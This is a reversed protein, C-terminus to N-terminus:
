ERFPDLQEERTDMGLPKVACRLRFLIEDMVETVDQQQRAAEEAKQLNTQQREPTTLHRPPLPPAQLSEDKTGSVSQPRSQPPSPPLITSQTMENPTEDANSGALTISSAISNPRSPPNAGLSATQSTNQIDSMEMEVDQQATGGDSSPPIAETDEPNLFARCVLDADPRVATSPDKIMRDFLHQLDYVFKQYARIEFPKVKRAGVRESKEPNREIDFKYEDFDLVLDRLPKITFYYQLLSNLYCTNGHSTLGVPWDIPAHSQIEKPRQYSSTVAAIAQETKHGPNDKRANEFVVGLMSEDVSELQINLHRCADTVDMGSEKLEGTNLWSHLGESHRYEAILRVARRAMDSNEPSDTIKTTHLTLISDDPYSAEAGLWSLAQEYTEM